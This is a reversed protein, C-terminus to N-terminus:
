PDPYVKNKTRAFRSGTYKYATYVYRISRRTMGCNLTADTDSHAHIGGHM